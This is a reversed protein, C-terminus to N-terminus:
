PSLIRAFDLFMLLCLHGGGINLGNAYLDPWIMACHMTWPFWIDLVHEAEKSPNDRLANGCAKM